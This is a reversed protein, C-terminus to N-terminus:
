EGSGAALRPPLRTSASQSAGSLRSGIWAVVAFSRRTALRSKAGSQDSPGSKFARGSRRRSTGVTAFPSTLAPESRTDIATSRFSLGPRWHDSPVGIVASSRIKVTSAIQEPARGARSGPPNSWM